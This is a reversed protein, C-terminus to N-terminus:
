YKAGDWEVDQVFEKMRMVDRKKLNGCRFLRINEIPFGSLLHCKLGDILASIREDSFVVSLFQLNHLSRLQYPHDNDAVAARIM